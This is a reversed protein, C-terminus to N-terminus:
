ALIQPPRELPNPEASIFSSDYQSLNSILYIQPTLNLAPELLLLPADILSGEHVHSCNCKIFTKSEANNPHNHHTKSIPCAQTKSFEYKEHSKAHNSIHSGTLCLSECLIGMNMVFVGALLIIAFSGKQM